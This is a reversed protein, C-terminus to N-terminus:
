DARQWYRPLRFDTVLDNRTVKWVRIYWLRLSGDPKRCVYTELRYWQDLVACAGGLIACLESDSSIAEATDRGSIVRLELDYAPDWSSICQM